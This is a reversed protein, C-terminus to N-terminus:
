RALWLTSAIMLQALCILYDPDHNGNGNKPRCSGTPGFASQAQGKKINRFM